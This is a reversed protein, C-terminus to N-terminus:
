RMPASSRRARRRDIKARGGTARRVEAVNAVAKAPLRDPPGAKLVRHVIRVAAGAMALLSDARDAKPAHRVIRAAAPRVSVKVGNRVIARPVHAVM